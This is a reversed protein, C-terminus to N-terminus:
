LRRSPRRPQWVPIQAALRVSALHARERIQKALETVLEHAPNQFVYPNNTAAQIFNEYSLAAVVANREARGPFLCWVPQRALDPTEVLNISLFDFVVPVSCELWTPPFCEEPFSSLFLGNLPTTRFDKAGKQFRPFDRKLRSGDVVWFMNKHFRERAIRESPDINSHQFELVLGNATRVDAIHKEGSEDHQIYEQWSPSFKNKWNRHWQTENEKWADCSELGQHAWHHM